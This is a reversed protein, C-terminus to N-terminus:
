RCRSIWGCERAVRGTTPAPHGQPGTVITIATSRFNGAPGDAQDVRRDLEPDSMRRITLSPGELSRAPRAPDLPARRVTPRTAWLADRDNGASVLITIRGRSAVKTRGLTNM